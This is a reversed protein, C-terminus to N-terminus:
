YLRAVERCRGGLLRQQEGGLGNLHCNFMQMQDCSRSTLLISDYKM